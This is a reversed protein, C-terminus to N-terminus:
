NINKWGMIMECSEHCVTDQLPKTLFDALMFEASNKELSMAEGGQYIIKEQLDYETGELLMKAVKNQLSCDCAGAVLMRGWENQLSFECVGAGEVVTSSMLAYWLSTNTMETVTYNAELDRNNSASVAGVADKFGIVNGTDVDDEGGINDGGADDDDDDDDDNENKDNFQYGAHNGGDDRDKNAGLVQDNNEDDTHNFQFLADDDEYSLPPVVDDNRTVSESISVNDNDVDHNNFEM